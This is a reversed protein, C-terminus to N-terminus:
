RLVTLSIDKGLQRARLAHLINNFKIIFNCIMFGYFGTVKLRIHPRENDKDNLNHITTLM